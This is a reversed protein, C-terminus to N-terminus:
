YNSCVGSLLAQVLSLSYTGVFNIQDLAKVAALAYKDQTRKIHTRLRPTMPRQPVRALFFLAKTYVCVRYHLSTQRDLKGEALSLSM